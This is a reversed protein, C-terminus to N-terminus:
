HMRKAVLDYGDGRVVFHGAAVKADMPFIVRRATGEIVFSANTEPLLRLREKTDSPIMYLSDGSPVIDYTLSRMLRYTGAYVRLLTAPVVRPPPPVPESSEHTGVIVWRGDTLAYIDTKRLPATRVKQGDWNETEIIRYTMVAVDGYRRVVADEIHFENEYGAARPFFSAAAEQKHSVDGFIGIQIWDDSVLANWSAGDGEDFARIRKTALAILETRLADITPGSTGAQAYSPPAVFTAAVCLTFALWPPAIRGYEVNMTLEGTAWVRKDAIGTVEVRSLSGWFLSSILTTAATADFPQKCPSIEVCRSDAEPRVRVTPNGVILCRVM